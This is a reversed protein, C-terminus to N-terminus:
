ARRSADIWDVAVGPSSASRARDALARPDRRVAVLSAGRLRARRRGRAIPAARRPLSCPRRAAPRRAAGAYVAEFTPRTSTSASLQELPVTSSRTPTRPVAHDRPRAPPPARVRGGRVRRGLDGAATAACRARLWVAFVVFVPPAVSLLQRETVHEVFRSAFAGVEVVTVVVYALATAVLARVGADQERGRLTEWALIGLAVLPVGVTLLAVAGTQWAISSAVDGLSYEDAEALPPTRGSSSVSGARALRPRRGLASCAAGLVVSRRCAAAPVARVLARRRRRAGARRRHTRSSASRRCARGSRSRRAGRASCSQRGLTPDRSARPSRGSPSSARRPLLAGREHPARQLRPRPHPRDAGGRRAGLRTGALPRAWLFVPVATLSM